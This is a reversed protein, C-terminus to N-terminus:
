KRGKEKWAKVVSYTQHTVVNEAKKWVYISKKEEKHKRCLGKPVWVPESMCLFHILYAKETEKVLKHYYLKAHYYLHNPIHIAKRTRNDPTDWYEGDEGMIVYQDYADCMHDFTDSM